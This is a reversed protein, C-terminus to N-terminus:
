SVAVRNGEETKFNSRAEVTKCHLAVGGLNQLPIAGGNQLQPVYGSQGYANAQGGGGNNLFYKSQTMFGARYAGTPPITTYATLANLQTQQGQLLNQQIGLQYLSNGFTINPNVIGYYNIAPSSGARM